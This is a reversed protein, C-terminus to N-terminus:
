QGATCPCAKKLWAKQLDKLRETAAADQRRKGADVAPEGLAPNPQGLREGAAVTTGPGGKEAQV